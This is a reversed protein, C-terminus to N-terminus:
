SARSHTTWVPFPRWTEGKEHMGELVKGIGEYKWEIRIRSMDVTTRGHSESPLVEIYEVMSKIIARQDDADMSDWHSIVDGGLHGLASRSQFTQLKAEKQEIQAKISRSLRLFAARDLAKEIYHDDEIEQLTAKDEAISVRLGQAQSYDDADATQIANRLEPLDAMPVIMGLIRNEYLRQSFSLRGCGLNSSCKYSGRDPTLMRGCDPRGCKLIGRLIYNKNARTTKRSPDTLITKVQEWTAEDLIAPWQAKGLISGKYEILGAIRPKILTRAVMSQTINGGRTSKIGQARWETVISRLSGGDLIKEAALQLLTAEKENVENYTAISARKAEASDDVPPQGYGFPRPGGHWEGRVAKDLMKRKILEGTRRREEADKAAIVTAVFLSGGPNVDTDAVLAVIEVGAVELRECFELFLKTDRYIRAQSYAVVADIRGAEAARVLRGFAARETFHKGGSIDNDVFTDSDGDHVLDWGNAEVLRLCDARQREVGLELGERDRSIRCYVAARVSERTQAM